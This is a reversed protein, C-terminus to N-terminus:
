PLHADALRFRSQITAAAVAESAVRAFDDRVRIELYISGDLGTAGLARKLAPQQRPSDLEILCCVRGARKNHTLRLSHIQCYSECVASLAQTLEGFDQAERLQDLVDSGMVNDYAPAPTREILRVHIQQRAVADKQLRIEVLILDKSM